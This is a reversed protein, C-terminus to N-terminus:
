RFKVVVTKLNTYRSDYILDWFQDLYNDVTGKGQFYTATELVNIAAAELNLLMFNKQFEDKFDLWDLFCLCSTKAEQEFERTAWRTTRGTKMYLMAWVIKTLDDEFVKPCLRIYTQCSTLFAKGAAQDGSFKPPFSPKLTLKKRSTSSAPISPMPSRQAPHTPLPDQVNQAQTPSLGALVDQLLQHTAEHQSKMKDMTAEIAHVCDMHVPQDDIM